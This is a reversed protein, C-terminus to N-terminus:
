TTTAASAQQCAIKFLEDQSRLLPRENRNRVNTNDAKLVRAKVNDALQTDIIERVQRRVEPDYIPFAVEVRHDLNRPM